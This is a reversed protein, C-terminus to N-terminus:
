RILMHIIDKSNFKTFPNQMTYYDNNLDRAAMIFPIRVGTGGIM